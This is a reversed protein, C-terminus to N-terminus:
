LIATNSPSTLPLPSGDKEIVRKGELGVVRISKSCTSSRPTEEQLDDPSSASACPSRTTPKPHRHSRLKAPPGLCPLTPLKGAFARGKPQCHRRRRTGNKEQPM